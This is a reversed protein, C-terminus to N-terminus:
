GLARGRRWRAIVTRNGSLLVDPVAGGDGALVEPRNYEELLGASFSDTSAIGSRRATRGAPAGGCSCRWRPCGAVPCCLTASASSRDVHRGHYMSGGYRGCLLSRRSRGRIGVVRQDATGTPTFHVLPAAVADARDARIAELVRELPEVLMVMGPGGGYPRDDVRRHPDDAFDRLQWIRVDVKGDEFARRTVGQKLPAAFLDPFLTIVDFRM